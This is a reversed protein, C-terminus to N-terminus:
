EMSDFYLQYAHEGPKVHKDSLYIRVMGEQRLHLLCGIVNKQILHQYIAEADVRIGQISKSQVKENIRSNIRAAIAEQGQLFSFHMTDGAKALNYLGVNAHMGYKRDEFLEVINSTNTRLKLNLHQFKDQFDAYVEACQQQSNAQREINSALTQNSYTLYQHRM